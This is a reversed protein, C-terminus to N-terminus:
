QPGAVMTMVVVHAIILGAAAVALVVHATRLSELVADLRQHGQFLQGQVEPDISDLSIHLKALGVKVLQLAVHPTILAANTNINVASGLETAFAVLGHDGWVEAGLQLPDGGTLYVYPPIPEAAETLLAKWDDVTLRRPLWTQNCYLCRPLFFCDLTVVLGLFVIPFHDDGALATEWNGLAAVLAKEDTVGERLLKKVREANRETLYENAKAQQLPAPPPPKIDAQWQRLAEGRALIAQWEATRVLAQLRERQAPQYHAFPLVKERKSM